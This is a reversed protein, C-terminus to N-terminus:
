VNAEIFSVVSAIDVAAVAANTHGLAGLNHMEASVASGYTTVNNSVADDSSYWIQQPLNTYNSTNQAPNVGAPLSTPYTVGHATDIEARLSLTDNTRIDEMDIAPLILVAAACTQTVRHWNLLSPAGHSIGLLVPNATSASRNNKVWTWADSTYTRCNANGWLGTITPVGVVFGHTALAQLLPPVASLGFAGGAESADAGAGHGYLLGPRGITVRSGAYYDLRGSTFRGSSLSTFAGM